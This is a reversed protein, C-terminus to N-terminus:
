LLIFLKFMERWFLTDSKEKAPNWFSYPFLTIKYQSRKLTGSSNAQILAKGPKEAKVEKAQARM